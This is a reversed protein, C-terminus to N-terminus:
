INNVLLNTDQNIPVHVLKSSGIYFMVFISKHISLINYHNVLLRKLNGLTLKM